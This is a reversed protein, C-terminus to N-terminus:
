DLFERWRVVLEQEPDLAWLGHSQLYTMRAKLNRKPVSRPYRAFFKGAIPMEKINLWQKPPEAPPEEDEDEDEDGAPAPEFVFDELQMNEKSALDLLLNAALRQDNFKFDLEFRSDEPQMFPFLNVHGLRQRCQDLADIEHMTVNQVDTLRFFLMQVVEPILDSITHMMDELQVSSLFFQHSVRRLAALQDSSSLESAALERLLVSFKDNTLTAANVPPRKSTSYDFQLWGSRQFRWRRLPVPPPQEEYLENRFCSYGEFEATDVRGRRRSLGVEWSELVMFADAVAYHIPSDLKLRYRGSPNEPNWWLFPEGHRVVELAAPIGPLMLLALYREAEDDGLCPLLRWLVDGIVERNEGRCLEWIFAAPLSVDVALASALAVKDKVTTTARWWSLLALMQRRGPRLKTRAAHARLLARFSWEDVGVFRSKKVSDESALDFSFTAAFSGSTPPQWRGEGVSKSHNYEPRAVVEQFAVNPSMGLRETAKYLMRLVARDHPYALNLEYRGGLRGVSYANMSSHSVEKEEAAQFCGDCICFRLSAGGNPGGGGQSRLLLHLISSMGALGFPNQSVNLETLAPHAKRELQRQRKSFGTLHNKAIM